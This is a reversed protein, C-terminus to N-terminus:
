VPLDAFGYGTANVGPLLNSNFSAFVNCRGAM